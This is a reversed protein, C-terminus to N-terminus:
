RRRPVISKLRYVHRPVDENLLRTCSAGRVDNIAGREDFFSLQWRPGPKTSRHLVAFREPNGRENFQAAELRDDDCVWNYWREPAGVEDLLREMVRDRELRIPSRRTM